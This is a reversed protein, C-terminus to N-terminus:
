GIWRHIPRLLVAGCVAGLLDATLDALDNGSRGPVWSQHWEDLVGTFGAALTALLLISRWVPAAPNRRYFYAAAFFGGGLFYGFHILKDSFQFDLGPPFHRVQSSLWWLTGFWVAFAV